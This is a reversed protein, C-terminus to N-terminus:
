LKVELRVETGGAPRNSVSLQAGILRAREEMGRLGLRGEEVAEPSLGRGNDAVGLGVREQTRRLTVTVMSAGAHQIVNELAEQAIRYLAQETEPTLGDLPEAVELHLAFGGRQAASEALARIAQALGLAELPSARLAQLARRTENLGQRTTTLARDLMERAREPSGSWLAAIADLQVALGSLTHALTDHLERALRNRERSVALEELAAAYEILKANAEALRRRQERQEEMLHTIIYGILMFVISRGLLVGLSSSLQETRWPSDGPTILLEVLVVALSFLAVQKYSYQWAILILPVSLFPFVLWFGWLRAVGYADAFYRMEIIQMLTVIILAARLHWRGLRQQLWPWCLMVLLFVLDAAFCAALAALGVPDPGILELFVTTGLLIVGLRSIIFLRFVRLLGPELPYENM